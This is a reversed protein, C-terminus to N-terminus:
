RADVLGTPQQSPPSMIPVSPCAHMIRQIHSDITKRRRLRTRQNCAGAAAPLTEADSYSTSSAYQEEISGTRGRGRDSAAWIQRADRYVHLRLDPDGATTPQM